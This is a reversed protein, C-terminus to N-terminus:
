NVLKDSLCPDIVVARVWTRDEPHKVMVLMGAFLKEPMESYRKVNGL